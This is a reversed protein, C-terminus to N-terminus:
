RSLGRVLSKFVDGRHEFNKFQDYSACAPSLLVVDGPRTLEKAKSVAAELTVCPLVQIGADRFSSEIAPADQGITLVGKVKGLSAEVLPRYPAGKGKGGLILWLNKPFAQLAVLSSDVNTAKSDNVWEVGDVTEVSEIRHPLGPFENLGRQIADRGVGNLRALLAAAMANQLNHRGRLARNSLTYDEAGEELGLRFGESEGLPCAIAAYFGPAVRSPDLTFGYVPVTIERALRVVAEDDANIVAFDGETRSQNRFIRSKAAGYEGMGAYRDIHDPQLNLIAAGHVRATEMGELQFSSLEVVRVDAPSATLFSESYPLGLNGGVFTRCGAAQFLAGCLATTTSKGNTGTIGV